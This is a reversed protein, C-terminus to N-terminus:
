YKLPIFSGKRSYNAVINLYLYLNAEQKLLPEFCWPNKLTEPLGAYILVTMDKGHLIANKVIIEFHPLAAPM